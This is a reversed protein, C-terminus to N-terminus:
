DVGVFIVDTREFDGVKMGYWSLKFFFLFVFGVVTHIFVFLECQFQNVSKELGAAYQSEFLLQSM